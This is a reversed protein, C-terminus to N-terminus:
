NCIPQEEIFTDSDLISALTVWNNWGNFHHQVILDDVIKFCSASDFIVCCLTELEQARRLPLYCHQYHVKPWVHSEPDNKKFTVQLYHFTITVFSYFITFFIAHYQFWLCSKNDFIRTWRTNQLSQQLVMDRVGIHNNKSSKFLYIKLLTRWTGNLFPVAGGKQNKKVLKFNEAGYSIEM